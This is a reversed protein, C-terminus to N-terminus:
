LEVQGGLEVVRNPPIRFFETAALANRHMAEFLRWRIAALRSRGLTVITVRGVFFSTDMMDFNLQYARCDELARPVNPQEVFGYRAVVSHFNGGLHTVEVRRQPPVRPINETVVHLLVIRTHLVKNHKLNHLLPVPVVDVRSTLYVATGPVRDKTRVQTIFNALPLTDRELKRMLAERGHRWTMMLFFVLAAVVLPFWGGDFVKMLNACVFSLDVVVFLGALALSLLLNWGWVERMTVFMLLSTLLMTMSVAIGFAAALNDSSRFGLTLILTLGMLVWNVFGVYIQGYGEASTQVIHLRPCLGLQIAQRTMSFAGSIISQSAIITAITALGVLPLQMMTPCLTFFPNTGPAVAGDVVLATQGAYNLLLAPLVLGYWATRIPRPGFHGMDAYLAEAGTACLFVAGLVVFGTVGHGFLYGVGYRPDLAALVGPHV